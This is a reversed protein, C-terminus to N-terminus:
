AVINVSYNTAGAFSALSDTGAAQAQPSVYDSYVHAAMFESQQNQSQGNRAEAFNQGDGAFNLNFEGTEFGSGAFASKLESISDKMANFAEESHVTISGSIIKDSLSLSIKVNGLKEPHVVLNINGQSNDKLIINGARVFDAANEQVANSLMNQFVSSSSSAAQDSSSTINQKAAGSLDLSVQFTNDNERKYSLKLDKGQYIKEVKVPNEDAPLKKAGATRLDIVSLELEKRSDKRNDAATESPEMRLLSAASENQVSELFRGPEDVALSMANELLEDETTNELIFDLAGGSASGASENQIKIEPTFDSPSDKLWELQRETFDERIVAEHIDAGLSLKGNKEVSASSEAQKLVNAGEGGWALVLVGNDGTEKEVDTEKDQGGGAQRVPKKLVNKNENIKSDQSYETQQAQIEQTNESVPEEKQLEQGSSRLMDIFSSSDSNSDPSPQIKPQAQPAIPEIQVSYM